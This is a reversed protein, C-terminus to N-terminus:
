FFWLDGASAGSPQNSQVYIRPQEAKTYYLDNHNHSALARDNLQSQVNSEIGELLELETQSILPSSTLKGDADVIAASSSTVSTSIRSDIEAETYYRDDHLHGSKSVQSWDSWTTTGLGTSRFYFQVSPGVTYYAQYTTSASDSTYVILIGNTSSPYNLSTSPSATSQYAGTDVVENLDESIGLNKVATVGAEVNDIASLTDRIYGAMSEPLIDGESTPVSTTGYHYLNFAERIDASETYAPVQTPFFNGIPEPM